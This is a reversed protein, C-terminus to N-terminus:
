ERQVGIPTGQLGLNNDGKKDNLLSCYVLTKCMSDNAVSLVRLLATVVMRFSM